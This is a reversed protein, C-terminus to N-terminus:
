WCEYIRNLNQVIWQGNNIFYCIEKLTYSTGDIQNCGNIWTVTNHKNLDLTYIISGYCTTFQLGTYLDKEVLM